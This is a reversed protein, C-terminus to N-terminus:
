KKSTIEEATLKDATAKTADVKQKDVNKDARAILAKRVKEKISSYTGSVFCRAAEVIRPIYIFTFKVFLLAFSVLLIYNLYQSFWGLGQLTKDYMMSFVSSYRKTIKVDIKAYPKAANLKDLVKQTQSIRFNVDAIYEQASKIRSLDTGAKQLTNNLMTQLKKYAEIKLSYLTTDAEFSESTFDSKAVFVGGASKTGMIKEVLSAAADTPVILAIRTSGSSVFPSAATSADLIKCGFTGSCLGKITDSIALSEGYTSLRLEYNDPYRNFSFDKVRFKADKAFGKYDFNSAALVFKQGELITNDVVKMADQEDCASVALSCAIIGACKGIAILPNRSIIMPKM